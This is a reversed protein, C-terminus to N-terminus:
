DEYPLALIGTCRVTHINTWHRKAEDATQRMRLAAKAGNEREIRVAETEMKRATILATMCEPDHYDMLRTM